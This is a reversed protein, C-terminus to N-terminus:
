SSQYSNKTERLALRHEVRQLDVADRVSAFLTMAYRIPPRVYRADTQIWARGYPEEGYSVLPNWILQYISSKLQCHGLEEYTEVM